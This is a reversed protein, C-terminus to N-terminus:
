QMAWERKFDELTKKIGFVEGNFTHTCCHCYPEMTAANLDPNTKRLIGGEDVYLGSFYSSEGCRVKEAATEPSLAVQWFIPGTEDLRAVTESYVDDWVQGVKSLLYRFLPTYDRGHRHTSHMSTDPNVAEDKTNRQWRYAGGDGHRVNHTRTNVKRYLPKKDFSRKSM